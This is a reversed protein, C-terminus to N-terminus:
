YINRATDIGFLCNPDLNGVHVWTLQITEIIPKSKRIDINSHEDWANIFRPHTVGKISHCTINVHQNQNRIHRSLGTGLSMPGSIKYHDDCPDVCLRRRNFYERFSSHFKTKRISSDHFLGHHPQYDQNSCAYKPRPQLMVLRRLEYVIENLFPTVCAVLLDINQLMDAHKVQSLKEYCPGFLLNRNNM